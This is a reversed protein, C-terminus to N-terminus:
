RHRDRDADAHEGALLQAQRPAPGFGAEGVQDMEAFGLAAPMERRELLGGKEGLFDAPREARQASGTADAQQFAPSRCRKVPPFASKGSGRAPRRPVSFVRGFRHIGQSCTTHDPSATIARGFPLAADDLAASKPLLRWGLRQPRTGGGHVLGIM